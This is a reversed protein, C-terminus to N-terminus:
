VPSMLVPAIGGALSFATVVVATPCVLGGLRSAPETDSRDLDGPSTPAPM